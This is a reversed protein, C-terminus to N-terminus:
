KEFHDLLDLNLKQIDFNIKNINEVDLQSVKNNIRKLYEIHLLKYSLSITLSIWTTFSIISAIIIWILLGFVVSEYEILLEASADVLGFASILVLLVIAVIKPLKAYYNFWKENEAIVDIKIDENKELNEM